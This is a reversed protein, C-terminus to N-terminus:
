KISFNDFSTYTEFMKNSRDRITKYSSELKRYENVPRVKPVSRAVVRAHAEIKLNSVIEQHTILLQKLADRYDGGKTEVVIVKERVVRKSKDKEYLLFFADVIKHEINQEKKLLDADIKRSYVEECNLELHYSAVKGKHLFPKKNDLCSEFTSLNNAM